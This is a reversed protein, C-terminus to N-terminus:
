YNFIQRFTLNIREDKTKATKPVCHKWHHQLEGAMILLSGHSLEYEIETKCHLNRLLFRRTEGLNLSAIVPNRGLEPENDQHWGMSDQGHRYLNALVSNFTVDAVSECRVKLQTLEPTWPHPQMTLGSYTYAADGHWAQLRPQLVSKGFMTIHEQHWPLTKRLQDFYNDAELHNLFHPDYYLEGREVKQWLDGGFLDGQQHM